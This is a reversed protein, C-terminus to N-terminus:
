CAQQIQYAREWASWWEQARREYTLEQVARFSEEAVEYRYMGDNILRRLHRHWDKPQKALLGVGLNHIAAYEARPSMVCPIRLAAMELPKLWSKASNFITDALPAIGIGIKAVYSPWDEHTTSGLAIPDQSLSFARRVGGAASIVMLQQGAEDLARTVGPGAADPDNPHSALSAPWGVQASDEHPIKFFAEPVCNRLIEFRRHRAYREVLAPTSVTVLTARECAVMAAVWSHDRAKSDPAKRNQDPHMTNFAPNMPHINSLDDDMDVVVAVGQARIIPIAQSLFTHTPRQVVLVDCDKPLFVEKVVGNEHSASLQREDPMALVIDYGQRILERTPWILRYYGCGHEDAPYVYAKM